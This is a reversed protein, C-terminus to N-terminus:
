DALEIHADFGPAPHRKSRSPFEVPIWVISTPLGYVAQMGEGIDAVIYVGCRERGKMQRDSRIAQGNHLDFAYVTDLKLPTVSFSYEFRDAEIPRLRRNEYSTDPVLMNSPSAMMRFREIQVHSDIEALTRDLLLRQSELPQRRFGTSRLLGYLRKSADHLDSVITEETSQPHRIEGFGHFKLEAANMLAYYALGKARVSTGAVPVENDHDAILFEAYLQLGSPPELSQNYADSFEYHKSLLEGDDQEPADDIEDKPTYSVAEEHVLELGEFVGHQLDLARYLTDEEGDPMVFPAFGEGSFIMPLHGLARFGEELEEIRRYTEADVWDDEDLIRISEALLYLQDFLGNAKENRMGILPQVQDLHSMLKVYLVLM